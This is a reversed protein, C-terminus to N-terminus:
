RRANTHIRGLAIRVEQVVMEVMSSYSHHHHHNISSDAEGFKFEYPMGGADKERVM